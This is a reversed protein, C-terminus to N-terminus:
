SILTFGHRVRKSASEEAEPIGDLPPIEEHSIVSSSEPSSVPTVGKPSSMARSSKCHTHTVKALVQKMRQNTGELDHITKEIQVMFNKKRDRTMKAHM